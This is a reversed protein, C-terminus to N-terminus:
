RRTRAKSQPHTGEQDNEWTMAPHRIATKRALRDDPGPNAPNRHAPPSSRRPVSTGSDRRVRAPTLRRPPANGPGACTLPWRGPWASSPVSPILLWTWRDAPAPGRIKPATWGLVQELLRFTHEPGPAGCGPGRDLLHQGAGPGRNGLVALGPDVQAQGKGRGYVHCFLRDPSTAAGPWLWNSVDAALVLRGDAARPLPLGALVRRLRAIDIRGHSVADYLAGQGRRHEPALSL